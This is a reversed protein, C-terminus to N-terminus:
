VTNRGGDALRKTAQAGGFVWPRFPRWPLRPLCLSAPLDVFGECGDGDDDSALEPQGFVDDIDFATGHGMAM